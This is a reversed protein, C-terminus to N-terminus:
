APYRWTVAFGASFGGVPLNAHQAPRGSPRAAAVFFDGFGRQILSNGASSQGAVDFPM